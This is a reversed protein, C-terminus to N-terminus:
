INPLGREIPKSRPRRGVPPRLKRGNRDAQRETRVGPHRPMGANTVNTVDVVFGLKPTVFAELSDNFGKSRQLTFVAQRNDPVLTHNARNIKLALEYVRKASILFHDVCQSFLDSEGKSGGLPGELMLEDQCVCGAIQTRM